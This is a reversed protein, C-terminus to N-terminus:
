LAGFVAVVVAALVVLLFLAEPVLWLWVVPRARAVSVGTALSYILVPPVCLLAFATVYASDGLDPMLWGSSATSLSALLAIFAVLLLGLVILFATRSRKMRRTADPM